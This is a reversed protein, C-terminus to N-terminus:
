KRSFLSTLGLDARKTIEASSSGSKAMKLLTCSNTCFLTKLGIDGRKRM